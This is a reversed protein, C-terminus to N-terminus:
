YRLSLVGEVFSDLYNYDEVWDEYFEVSAHLDKCNKAANLAADVYSDALALTEENMKANRFTSYAVNPKLYSAYTKTEYKCYEVILYSLRACHMLNKDDTGVQKELKSRYSKLQGLLADLTEKPNIRSLFNTNILTFDQWLSLAKKNKDETILYYETCMLELAQPSGKILQNAFERVDMLSVLGYEYEFTKKPLKRNRLVDKHTPILLAVLDVDSEPIDLGYNQSGKLFLGFCNQDYQSEILNQATFLANYVKHKDTM